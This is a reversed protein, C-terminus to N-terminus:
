EVMREVGMKLKRVEVNDNGGETPDRQWQLALVPALGATAVFRDWGSFAHWETRATDASGKVNGDVTFRIMVNSNLPGVTVVRAECYWSLIYTGDAMPDATRQLATQWTEQDTSQAPNSEWFQFRRVGVLQGTTNQKGM